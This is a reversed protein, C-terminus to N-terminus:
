LLGEFKKFWEGFLETKKEQYIIICKQMGEIVSKDSEHAWMHGFCKIGESFLTNSQKLLEEQMAEKWFENYLGM